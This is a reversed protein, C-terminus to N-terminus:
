KLFVFPSVQSSSDELTLAEKVWPQGDAMEYAKIVTRNTLFYLHESYAIYPGSGRKIIYKSFDVLGLDGETGLPPMRGTFKIPIGFLTGPIGKTADGAIFVNWGVTDALGLLKPLVTINAVWIANGLSDPLIKGMMSAVDTFKVDSATNRTVTLKADANLVGKPEGVGNGRLFRYDKKGNIADRFLNEVFAGMVPANRLLQDTMISYDGIEKPELLLGDLEATQETQAGAEAKWTPSIGGYAGTSGQVLYPIRIGADPQDGPPLVMARPEVISAEVGLRLITSSTQDPVLIGGGSGTTMSFARDEVTEMNKYRRYAALAVEGLSRVAPITGPAPRGPQNVSAEGRARIEEHQTERDIDVMLNRFQTMLSDYEPKESESLSRNEGLAKKHIADAKTFIEFARRRLEQLNM